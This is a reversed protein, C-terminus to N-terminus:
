FTRSYRIAARDQEEKTIGTGNGNGRAGANIDPAQISVAALAPLFDAWEAKAYDVLATEQGDKVVVVLPKGDKVPRVQIDLDGALTTLVSAKYGAAEAAKTLARERKLAALEATTTGNADMAAQIAAPTGLASYAAYADAEDKTLVKTGEAPAKGKAEALDQKLTRREERLRYNDSQVDALKEALRIADRGFQELVDSARVKGSESSGGQPQGDDEAHSLFNILM